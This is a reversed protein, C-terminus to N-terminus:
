RTRGGTLEVGVNVLDCERVSVGRSGFTVISMSQRGRVTSNLDLKVQDKIYSRQSGNDFVM